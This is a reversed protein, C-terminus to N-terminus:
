MLNVCSPPMLLQVVGKGDYYLGPTFITFLTRFIPLLTPNKAYVRLYVHNSVSKFEKAAMGCVQKRRDSTATTRDYLEMFSDDCDQPTTMKFTLWRM